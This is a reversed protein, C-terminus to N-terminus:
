GLCNKNFYNTMVDGFHMTCYQRGESNATVINQCDGICCKLKPDILLGHGNCDDCVDFGNLSHSDCTICKRLLGNAGGEKEDALFLEKLKFFTLEPHEKLNIWKGEHQRHWGGDDVWEAFRKMQEDKQLLALSALDRMGTAGSSYACQIMTSEMDDYREAWMEIEEDSPMKAERLLIAVKELIIEESKAVQSMELGESRITEYDSETLRCAELSPPIVIAKELQAIKELLPKEIANRYEFTKSKIEKWVNTEIENFADLIYRVEQKYRDDNYPYSGRGETVWRRGEFEKRVADFGRILVEREHVAENDEWKIASRESQRALYIAKYINEKKDWVMVGSGFAEIAIEEDTVEQKDEPSAPASFRKRYESAYVENTPDCVCDAPTPSGCSPCDFKKNEEQSM